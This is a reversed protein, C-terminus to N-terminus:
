PEVWTAISRVSGQPLRHLEGSADIVLPWESHVLALALLENAVAAITSYGASLPLSIAELTGTTPDIFQIRSKIM